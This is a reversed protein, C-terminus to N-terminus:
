SSIVRLGEREGLWNVRERQGPRTFIPEYPGRAQLDELLAFSLLDAPGDELAPDAWCLASVAQLRRELSPRPMGDFVVIVSPFRAYFSRWLPEVAEGQRYRYFQAYGALQWLLESLMKRGRDVEVFLRWLETPTSYELVADVQLNKGQTMRWGPGLPHQQERRWAVEHGRLRAAQLFSIGVDQVALDHAQLPGEARERKMPERTSGLAELGLRTLWWIRQHSSRRETFEVLGRGALRNLSRRTATGDADVPVAIARTQQSTLLRYRELAALIASEPEPLTPM